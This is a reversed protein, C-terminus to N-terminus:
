KPVKYLLIGLIVTTNIALCSIITLIFWQSYYEFKLSNIHFLFLLLVIVNIIPM